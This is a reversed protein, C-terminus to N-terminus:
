DDVTIVKFGGLLVIDWKRPNRAPTRLLISRTGSVLRLTRALFGDPHPSERQPNNLGKDAEVLIGCSVVTYWEIIRPFLPLPITFAFLDLLLSLFVVREIKIAMNFRALTIATSWRLPKPSRQFFYPRQPFNHSLFHSSPQLRQSRHCLRTLTDPTTIPWRGRRDAPVPLGPSGVTLLLDMPVRLHNEAVEKSAILADGKQM